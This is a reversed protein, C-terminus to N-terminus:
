SRRYRKWCFGALGVVALGALALSSPEPVTQTDFSFTQSFDSIAASGSQGGFLAIDKEIHALQVGRTFDKHDIVNSFASSDVVMKTALTSTLPNGDTPDTVAELIFSTGDNLHGPTFRLTNDTLLGAGLYEVDFVFRTDLTQGPLVIMTPTQFLLGLEGAPPSPDAVVSITAPDVAPGSPTKVSSYGGFNFFRLNGVSIDAGALLDSLLAASASSHGLLMAAVATLGLLMKRVRLTM